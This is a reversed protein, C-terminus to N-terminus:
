ASRKELNHFLEQWYKRTLVGVYHRFSLTFHIILWLLFIPQGYFIPIGSGEQGLSFTTTISYDYSLFSFLGFLITLGLGVVGLKHRWWFLFYNIPLAILGVYHKWLFMTSTTAITWVLLITSITLIALPIFDLYYKAKEKTM